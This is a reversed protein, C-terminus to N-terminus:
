VEEFAAEFQQQNGEWYHFENKLTHTHRNEPSREIIRLGFLEGTKKERYMPASYLHLDTPPQREATLFVQKAGTMGPPSTQQSM